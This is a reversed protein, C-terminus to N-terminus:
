YRPVSPDIEESWADIGGDLHSVDKFGRSELFRGARESRVGHHCYIAVPAEPNLENFRDGLEPLPILVANPLHAFAFEDPMRVDLVVTGPQGILDQFPQPRLTRM